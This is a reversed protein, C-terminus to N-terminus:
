EKNFDDQTFVPVTGGKSLLYIVYNGYDDPDLNNKTCYTLYDKDM